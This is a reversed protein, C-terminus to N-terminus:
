FILSKFIVCDLLLGVEPLKVLVGLQSSQYV